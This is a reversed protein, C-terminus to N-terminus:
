SLAKNISDKIEFKIEEINIDNKISDVIEKINIEDKITDVIDDIDIEDKISEVIDKFNLEERLREKIENVLESIEQGNIHIQSSKGIDKGINEFTQGFPKNAAKGFNFSFGQAAKAKMLDAERQKKLEKTSYWGTAPWGDEFVINHRQPRLGEAEFVDVVNEWDAYTEPAKAPQIATHATQAVFKLQTLDSNGTNFTIDYLEWGNYKKLPKIYGRNLKYILCDYHNGDFVVRLQCTEDGRDNEGGNLWFCFSYDTNKELMMPKSIIETYNQRNWDGITFVEVLNGDVGNIFCREGVNRECSKNFSWERANFYIRNSM